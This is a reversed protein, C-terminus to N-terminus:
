ENKKGWKRKYWEEGYLIQLIYKVKVGDNDEYKSLYAKLEELIAESSRSSEIERRFSDIFGAVATALKGIKTFILYALGFIALLPWSATCVIMAIWAFEEGWEDPDISIVIGCTIVAAIMWLFIFLFIM